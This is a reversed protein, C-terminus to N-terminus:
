NIQQDMVFALKLLVKDVEIRHARLVDRISQILDRDMQRLGESTAGEMEGLIALIRTADAPM